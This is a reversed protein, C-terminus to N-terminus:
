LSSVVFMRHEPVSDMWNNMASDLEAIIQQESRQIVKGFMDKPRKISYQFVGGDAQAFSRLPPRVIARMAYALIDMLSLYCNFFAILSPKGEPQKFCHGPDPSEWYEDDCDIPFDLDFSILSM